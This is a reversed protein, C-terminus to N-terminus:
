DNFVVIHPHDGFTAEYTVSLLEGERHNISQRGRRYTLAVQAPTSPDLDIEEPWVGARWGLDSACAVLQGGSATFDTREFRTPISEVNSGM